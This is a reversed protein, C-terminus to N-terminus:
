FDPPRYDRSGHIVRIVEVGEKSPRYFILFNGVPFFRLDTALDPRAQGTGPERALRWCENEIRDILRTAAAPDRAGIYRVIEDLDHFADTTFRPRAM